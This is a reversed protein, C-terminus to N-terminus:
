LAHANGGGALQDQVSSALPVSLVPTRALRVVREATSGLLAREVTTKSHLNLIVIDMGREEAIQVIKRFPKGELVITAIDVGSVKEKAILENLKERMVELLKAREGELSGIFAPAWSIREECDVVHMVTLRAGPAKALEIAYKLGSSSSECLDTTYLIRQLPVPATAHGEKEVHSVTLLPVSVKRLMHETVSGIFWRGVNRRGHTGMIMLDVGETKVLGLLDEEIRGTKVITRVNLGGAHESTVLGQIERQAKGYQQKEVEPLETPFAYTLASSEPVIHTLILGAKFQEALALGYRVANKSPESFDVAVLINKFSIM